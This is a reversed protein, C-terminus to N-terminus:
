IDTTNEVINSYVINYGFCSADNKVFLTTAIYEEESNEHGEISVSSTVSFTGDENECVNKVDHVYVAYGRPIIYVFGDKAPYQSNFGGLDVIEIGYMDYVFQIVFSEAIYDEDAERKDLLALVSNNVLADIDAIDDNYSFNRNLMNEFRAELAREADYEPANQGVGNEAKVVASPATETALALTSVFVIAVMLILSLVKCKMLIGGKAKNEVIM